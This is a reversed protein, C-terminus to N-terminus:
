GRSGGPHMHTLGPHMHSLGPHMHSLGPHMHSLGPHMQAFRSALAPGTEGREGVLFWARALAVLLGAVLVQLVIVRNRRFDNVFQLEATVPNTALPNGEGGALEPNLVLHGLAAKMLLLLLETEPLACLASANLPSGLMQLQRTATRAVVPVPNDLLPRSGDTYPFVQMYADYLPADDFSTAPAPAALLLAALCVVTRM